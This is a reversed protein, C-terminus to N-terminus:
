TNMNAVVIYGIVMGLIMAVGSTVAAWKGLTEGRTHGAIGLGIGALGFLIPIFLLSIAACVFAIISLLQGASKQGPQAYPAQEYPPPPPPGPPPQQAWQAERRSPDDGPPQDQPSTM